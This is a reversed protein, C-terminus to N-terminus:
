LKALNKISGGKITFEETDERNMNGMRMNGMGMNMHDNGMNMNGMGMNMHDNGMNMNGMNMNGMNMNGMNMNGMNMNGMNMNGMGMNMHDNSRNMNGIEINDNGMDINGRNMYDNGKNMTAEFYDSKLLGSISNNNYKNRLNTNNNTQTDSSYILAKMDETTDTETRKKSKNKFTSEKHHKLTRTGKMM